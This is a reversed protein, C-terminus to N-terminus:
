GRAATLSLTISDIPDDGFFVHVDGLVRCWPYNFSEAGYATEGCDVRNYVERVRDLDDGIEVGARTRAGEALTAMSFVGTTPSVLFSTDDYHLEAPRARTARDSAPVPISPPGTFRRGGPFVGDEDDTPEGLRARIRSETDGFRVGRLIGAREDVLVPNEAEDSCGGLVFAALVLTVQM